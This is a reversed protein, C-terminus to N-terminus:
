HRSCKNELIALTKDIYSVTLNQVYNTNERGASRIINIDYSTYIKGPKPHATNIFIAIFLITKM